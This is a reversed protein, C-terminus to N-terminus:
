RAKAKKYQEATPNSILSLSDIVERYQNTGLTTLILISGDCSLGIYLHDPRSKDAQLEASTVQISPAMETQRGVIDYTDGNLKIQKTNSLTEIWNAYVDKEDAYEVEEIQSLIDTDTNPETNGKNHTQETSQDVM